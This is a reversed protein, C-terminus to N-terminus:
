KQEVIVKHIKGNFKASKGYDAVWTGDDIGVDALDDVSFIGPQTKDLRGEGVKNGDVFLTGAGGKGPGGGDYKFDFVLTHKGPQLSQSSVISNSSIGLFNYTFVPKGNKVYFSFGGFRGGQCVLVGNATQKLDVEATLQFSTNKLDLFIDIGLGRMGEGMTLKKRDGMLNPRGIAKPNLQEFSRDDIPLVHYKEAQEIFLAPM